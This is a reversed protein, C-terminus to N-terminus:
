IKLKIGGFIYRGMSPEFYRGAAANIQVNAMYLQDLLNNIGFSPEINLKGWQKQCGVRLNLLQYAPAQTINADDAYQMGAWRWQGVAFWGKQNFYRVEAYATHKPIGPMAKGAYSINNVQYSQYIFDSYTYNLYGTLGKSLQASMGLEIGKRQTEGANRYFSKGPFQTLQYTVLEDSVNIQFLALDIRYRKNLITKTGIEYNVARMPLVSTNFGGKGTPDNSLENLTPTEFSTSVNAYVNSAASLTYSLGATPSFKNFSLLGSQDGDSLLRDTAKAQIQDYRTGVTLWLSKSLGLEQLLFVGTAMYNELQDLTQTSKVGNKNNYRQRDDAQNEYDLGVKLRYPMKGLQDSFQYNIGGGMFQRKFAIMGSAEFALRNNFDRFTYFSRANIQHKAGIKKDFVLGIRSQSVTTGANFQVNQLRAQQRNEAVQQLTIGGPDQANPVNTHSILLSLHTNDNFSYKLKANGLLNSMSSFDRYGTSQMKAMSFLYQFKGIQQGTKLQYRQFGYSGASAAVEAFPKPPADETSFAIVGGSANGWLGSAPGRIVEMKGVFGMDIGGVKVQGDPTSEPIGDVLIKIGRIGFAARAGFGRISIRVDQAFNDPNQAFVGAVTGLSEYLSMMQQGTQLRYKNLVTIALPTQRENTELRSANVNVENLTKQWVTSDRQGMTITTVMIQLLFFYIFQYKM